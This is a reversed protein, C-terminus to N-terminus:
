KVFDLNLMMPSAKLLGTIGGTIEGVGQKWGGWGNVTEVETHQGVGQKTQTTEEPVNHGDHIMIM